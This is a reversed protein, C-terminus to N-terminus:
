FIKKTNKKDKKHEETTEQESQLSYRVDIGREKLFKAYLSDAYVLQELNKNRQQLNSIVEKLKRNEETVRIYSNKLSELDQITKEYINEKM